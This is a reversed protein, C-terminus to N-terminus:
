QKSVGARLFPVRRQLAGMMGRLATELESIGLVRCAGFLVLLGLPISVALDVLRGLKSEGLSGRISASTLWITMGMVASAASVRIFTRWLNRGYLGKIRRHMLTFLAVASFIAVASTSLALGEHGFGAYHIMTYATIFNVAICLFSITV